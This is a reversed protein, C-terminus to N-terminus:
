IQWRKGRRFESVISKGFNERKGNQAIRYRAIYNLVAVIVNMQTLLLWATKTM